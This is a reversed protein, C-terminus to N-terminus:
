NETPMDVSDIVLAEYPATGAELRLGLQERVATLVGAERTDFAPDESIIAYSLTWEFLGTLGTRDVIPRSVNGQLANVLAAFQGASRVTYKGATISSLASTCVPRGNAGVPPKIDPNKRRELEYTACNVTSPLLAPGLRGERAVTLTYVPHEGRTEWRVRLKFRDALLTRLMLQSAGPKSGDPIKGQIDFRPAALDYRREGGPILPNNAPVILMSRMASRPDLDYAREILQRVTANTITVTGNAPVQYRTTTDGSINRKVSAVEFAPELAQPTPQQASLPTLWATWVLLALTRTM